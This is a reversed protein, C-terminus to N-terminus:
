LLFMNSHLIYEKWLRAAYSVNSDNPLTQLFPWFSTETIAGSPETLSTMLALFTMIAVPDSTVGKGPIVMSSSRMTDDVPARLRLSTGCFITRMPAPTMPTSNPDTQDLSPDSTVATSNGPCTPPM